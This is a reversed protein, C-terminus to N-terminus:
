GRRRSASRRAAPTRSFNASRGCAPAVSGTACRRACRATAGRAVRLSDAPSWPETLSVRANVLEASDIVIYDGLRRDLSPPKPPGSPFIRKFNWGGEPLKRFNVEADVVRLHAIRLRRDILDRIDYRIDIPGTRVFVSDDAGRIALSDLRLGTLLSGHLTGLVVTGRDGVGAVIRSAIFRRIQERGFATQTVGIAVGAVILTLLVIVAGTALVVTRRRPMAM